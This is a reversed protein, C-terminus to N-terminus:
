FAPIPVNGDFLGQRRDLFIQSFKLRFIPEEASVGIEVRMAYGGGPGIVRLGFGGSKWGIEQYDFFVQGTDYFLYSDVGIDAPDNVAMIPWRYEINFGLSGEATFRSSAFGRLQDPDRTAVLRQLPIARDTQNGMKLMFFRAALTRQPHGLTFYQQLDTRYTWFIDGTGDTAQFRDVGFFRLGGSGPRGTQATTDHFLWASANWGESTEGFGPPIRGEHVNELHPFDDDPLTSERARATTFVARAGLGFTRGVRRTTNLGFWTITREYFSKGSAKSDRGLGYYQTGPNKDIGTGFVMQQRDSLRFLMGLNADQAQLTSYAAEMRLNHPGGLFRNHHLVLGLQLGKADSISFIPLFYSGWPGPIGGAVDAFLNLLGWKDLIVILGKLAWNLLRFPVGIVWYPVMIVSEWLPRGPTKAAVRPGEERDPAEGWQSGRARLLSDEASLAFAGPPTPDPEPDEAGAVPIAVCVLAIGAVAAVALVPAVPRWWRRWQWWWRWRRDRIRPRRRARPAAGDSPVTGAVGSRLPPSDDLGIRPM